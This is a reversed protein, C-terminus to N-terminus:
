SLGFANEIQNVTVRGNEEIVEIVDFRFDTDALNNAAIYHMATCIIKKQKAYGVSEAPSGFGMGRRFKVEAFIITNGERCILDIEGGRTRYNRCLIGVGKDRFFNEATLQGHFGAEVKNM